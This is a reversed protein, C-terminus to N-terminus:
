WHITGTCQGQTKSDTTTHMRKAKRTATPRVFRKLGPHKACISTMMKKYWSDDIVKKIPNYEITTLCNRAYTPDINLPPTTAEIVYTKDDLTVGVLAHKQQPWSIYQTKIGLWNLTEVCLHSKVM